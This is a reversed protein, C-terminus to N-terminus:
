LTRFILAAVVDSVTKSFSLQGNNDAAEFIADGGTTAVVFAGARLKSECISQALRARHHLAMALTRGRSM